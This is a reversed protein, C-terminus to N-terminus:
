RRKNPAVLLLPWYIEFYYFLSSYYFAISSSVKSKTVSEFIFSVKYFLKLKKSLFYFVSKSFTLIKNLPKLFRLSSAIYSFTSSPSIDSFESAFELSIFIPELFM